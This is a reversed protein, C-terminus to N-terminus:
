TEFASVFLFWYNITNLMCCRHLAYYIWQFFNREIQYHELLDCSQNATIISSHLLSTSFYITFLKCTMQFLLKQNHNTQQLILTLSINNKSCKIVFTNLPKEYYNHASFQVLLTARYLKWCVVLIVHCPSFFLATIYCCLLSHM